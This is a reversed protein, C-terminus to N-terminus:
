NEPLFIVGSTSDHPNDEHVFTDFDMWCVRPGRAPGGATVYFYPLDNRDTKEGFAVFDPTHRKLAYPHECLMTLLTLPDLPKFNKPMKTSHSEVEHIQVAQFGLPIAMGIHPIGNKTEFTKLINQAQIAGVDADEIQELIGANLFNMGHEEATSMFRTAACALARRYEDVVYIIKEQFSPLLVPVLPTRSSGDSYFLRPATEQLKETLTAIASQVLGADVEFGKHGFVSALRRANRMFENIIMEKREIGNHGRPPELRHGNPNGFRGYEDALLAEEEESLLGAQLLIDNRVLLRLMRNEGFPYQGLAKEVEDATSIQRARLIENAIRTAESEPPPHFFTSKSPSHDSRLGDHPEDEAM